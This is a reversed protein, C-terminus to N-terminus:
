NSIGDGIGTKCWKCCCCQSNESKAFKLYLNFAIITKLNVDHSFSGFSLLFLSCLFFLANWVIIEMKRKEEFALCCQFNQM